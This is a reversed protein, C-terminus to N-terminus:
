GSYIYQLYLGLVATGEELLIEKSTPSYAPYEERSKFTM